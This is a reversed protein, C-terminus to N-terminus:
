PQMTATCTADNISSECQPMWCIALATADPGRVDLSMAGCGFVSTVDAHRAGAVPEDHTETSMCRKASWPIFAPIVFVPNNRYGNSTLRVVFGFMFGTYREPTLVLLIVPLVPMVYM